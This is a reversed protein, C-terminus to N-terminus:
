NIIHTPHPAAGRQLSIFKEFILTVNLKRGCLCFFVPEPRVEFGPRWGSWCLFGPRASMTDPRGPDQAMDPLSEWELMSRSCRRAVLIGAEPNKEAEKIALELTKNLKAFSDLYNQQIESIGREQRFDSLIELYTGVKAELGTKAM